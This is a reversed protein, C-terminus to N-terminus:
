DQTEDDAPAEARLDYRTMGGADPGCRPRAPEASGGTAPLSHAGRGRASRGLLGTLSSERM